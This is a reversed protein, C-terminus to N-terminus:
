SVDFDKIERHIADLIRPRYKANMQPATTWRGKHVTAQRLGQVLPAYPTPNTLSMVGQKGRTIRWGAGLNGTRKYKQGPREPPYRRLEIDMQVLSPGFTKNLIATGDFKRYKLVTKELNEVRVKLM